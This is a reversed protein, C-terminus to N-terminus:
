QDDLPRADPRVVRGTLGSRHAQVGLRGITASMDGGSSVKIDHGGQQAARIMPVMPLLHGYAPWAGFLIRM